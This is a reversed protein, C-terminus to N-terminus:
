AAPKREEAEVYPRLAARLHQDAVYEWIDAWDFRWAQGCHRCAVIPKVGDPTPRLQKLELSWSKGNWFAKMSPHVEPLKTGHYCPLGSKHHLQILGPNKELGDPAFDDCGFKGAKYLREGRDHNEYEGPQIDDEDPFPLRFRLENAEAVPDVNGPKTQVKERDEYRLYYMDECTGITIEANDSKRIAYEGM